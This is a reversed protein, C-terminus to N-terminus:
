RHGDSDGTRRNAEFRERSPCGAATWAELDSVRWLRKRAIKIPAPTAGAANLEQWTRTGLGCLKAAGTSSVLLPEASLAVARATPKSTTATM